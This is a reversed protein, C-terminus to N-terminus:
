MTHLQRIYYMCSITEHSVRKDTEMHPSLLLKFTLNHEKRSYSINVDQVHINYIESATHSLIWVGQELSGTM